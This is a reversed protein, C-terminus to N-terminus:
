FKMVGDVEGVSWLGGLSEPLVHDWLPLDAGSEREERGNETIAAKYAM